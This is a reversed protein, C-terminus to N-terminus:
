VELSRVQARPADYRLEVGTSAASRVSGSGTSSQTSADPGDAPAATVDGELPTSEAAATAAPVLDATRLTGNLPNLLTDLRLTNEPPVYAATRAIPHACTYHDACVAHTLVLTHPPACAGSTSASGSQAPLLPMLCQRPTLGQWNRPGDPVAGGSLPASTNVTEVPGYGDAPTADAVPADGGMHVDVEGAPFSENSSASAPATIVEGEKAKASAAASLLLEMGEQWGAKAAAHAPTDGVGDADSASCGAVLLWQVMAKHKGAAAAHLASSGFKDTAVLYLEPIGKKFILQAASLLGLGSCTHLATRGSDDTASLDPELALLLPLMRAVFEANRPIAGMALLLHLVPSGNCRAKISAGRLLLEKASELASNLIAVHLPTCGAPDKENIDLIVDDEGPEAAILASLRTVDNVEAADHLAYKTPRRLSAEDINCSMRYTSLYLFFIGLFFISYFM